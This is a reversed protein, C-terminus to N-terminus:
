SQFILVSRQHIVMLTGALAQKWELKYRHWDAETFSVLCLLQYSVKFVQLWEMSCVSLNNDLQVHQNSIKLFLVIQFLFPLYWARKHAAIGELYKYIYIYIYIM